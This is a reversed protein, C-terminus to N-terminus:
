APDCPFPEALLHNDILRTKGVRAAVLAITSDCVTAVEDLSDRDALALYDVDSIGASDFVERMRRRLESADREGGGYLESALRLSQSLSLSRRREPASLYENRSSLALGDAERLIPCVRIRIPLDLDRVMQRVVLSQQYDKQGFYAFQAPALHFLKLVVTAVGRFHGPRYGGCLMNTLGGVEIITGYDDPYITGADPAFILDIGVDAAMRRDSDFSRPYNDLDRLDDFQTENVFISIVTFDNEKVSREMLARHGPHLAGMTPVLGISRGQQREDGCRETLAAPDTIVAPAQTGRDEHTAIM